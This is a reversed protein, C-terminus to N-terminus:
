RRYALHRRISSTASQSALPAVGAAPALAHDAEPLLLSQKNVNVLPQNAM